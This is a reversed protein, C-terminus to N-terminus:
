LLGMEKFSYSKNNKWSIIIHDLIDIDLVKAMLCIKKTIDIDESSPRVDGSPHNHAIILGNSNLLLATKLLAKPDVSIYNEHSSTAFRQIGLVNKKADFFIGILVEFPENKLETMAIKIASSSFLVSDIAVKLFGTKKLSLSYKPIQIM